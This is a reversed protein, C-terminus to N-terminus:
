KTKGGVKSAKAKRGALASDRKAKQVKSEQKKRARRMERYTDVSVSLKNALKSLTRSYGHEKKFIEGKTAKKTPREYVIAEPDVQETSM